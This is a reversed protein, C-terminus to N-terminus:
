FAVEAGVNFQLTGQIEVGLFRRWQGRL